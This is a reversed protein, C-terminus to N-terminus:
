LKYTWEKIRSLDVGFDKEDGFTNRHIYIPINIITFKRIMRYIDSDPVDNDPYLDIVMNPGIHLQKIITKIGTYYAKGGVSLYVNNYRNNANLNYSVSLIDFPGEAVHIHIPDVGKTDIRSPLCYFQIHDDDNDFINYNVYSKRIAKFKMQMNSCNRLNVYSNDLSLFGIFYSSIADVVDDPLTRESIGNYYLFYNLDFVIKNNLAEDVTLKLGLRRNLYNLKNMDNNTNGFCGITSLNAVKTKNVSYKSKRKNSYALINLDQILDDDDGVNFRTLELLVDGSLTGSKNCLFCHYKPAVQYFDTDKDTQLGIYFHADRKDKQSDGCFPCRIVVEKGGSATHAVPFHNLLFYKLREKNLM